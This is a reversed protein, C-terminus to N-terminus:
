RQPRPVASSTLSGPGRAVAQGLRTGPWAVPGEPGLRPCGSPCTPDTLWGWGHEWGEDERPCDGLLGGQRGGCVPVSAMEGQRGRLRKAVTQDLKDGNRLFLIFGKVKWLRQLLGRKGTM